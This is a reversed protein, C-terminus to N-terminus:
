EHSQYTKKILKGPSKGWQTLPWAILAVGGYVLCLVAFGVSDHAQNVADVGREFAMQGLVFIRASNGVFALTLAIILLILRKAITTRFLEGLALGAMFGSQISRIGSCGEAVDVMSGKAFLINGIVQVPYGALLLSKHGLHVVQDTLKQIMADEIFSPLPVATLCFLTAPLCYCSIRWGEARAILLHINLLVLLSIIWLPQRWFIDVEHILRLPILALLSVVLIGTVFPGLAQPQSIHESRRRLFFLIALPLFSGDTIM